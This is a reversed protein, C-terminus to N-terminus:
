NSNRFLTGAMKLVGLYKLTACVSLGTHHKSWRWVIMMMMVIKKSIHIFQYLTISCASHTDIQIRIDFGSLDVNTHWTLNCQNWLQFHRCFEWFLYFFLSFFIRRGICAIYVCHSIRYVIYKLWTNMYINTWTPPPWHVVMIDCYIYIIMPPWFSVIYYEIDDKKNTKKEICFGVM